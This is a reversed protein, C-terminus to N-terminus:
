SLLPKWHELCNKCVKANTCLKLFVEKNWFCVDSMWISSKEALVRLDRHHRDLMPVTYPWSEPKRTLWTTASIPLHSTQFNTPHDPHDIMSSPRFIRLTRISTEYMPFMSAKATTIEGPHFPVELARHRSQADSRAYWIRWQTVQFCWSM